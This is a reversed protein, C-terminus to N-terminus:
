EGVNSVVQLVADGLKYATCNERISIEDCIDISRQVLSAHVFAEVDDHDKLPMSDTAEGLTAKTLMDLKGNFVTLITPKSEPDALVRARALAEGFGEPLGVFTSEGTMTDAILKAHNLPKDTNIVRGYVTFGNNLSAKAWNGNIELTGDLHEIENSIKLLAECFSNPLTYVGSGKFGDDTTYRTVVDGDCSYLTTLTSSDFNFCIGM